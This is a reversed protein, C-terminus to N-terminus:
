LSSQWHDALREVDGPFLAAEWGGGHAQEATMGTYDLWRQNLFDTSGDPAASWALTPIADIILSLNRESASPAEARRREAVEEKPAQNPLPATTVAYKEGYTECLWM